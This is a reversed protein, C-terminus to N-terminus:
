QSRSQLYFDLVNVRGIRFFDGGSVSMEQDAFTLPLLDVVFTPRKNRVHRENEEIYPVYLCSLAELTEQMGKRDEIDDRSGENL